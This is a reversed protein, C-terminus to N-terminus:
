LPRGESRAAETRMGGFLNNWVKPAAQASPSLLTALALAGPLFSLPKM